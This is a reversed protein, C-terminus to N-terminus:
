DRLVSVGDLKRDWPAFEYERSDPTAGDKYIFKVMVPIQKECTYYWDRCLNKVISKHAKRQEIDTYTADIYTLLQGVLNDLEDFNIMAGFKDFNNTDKSSM